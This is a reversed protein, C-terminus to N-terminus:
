AIVPGSVSDIHDECIVVLHDFVSLGLAGRKKIYLRKESPEKGCKVHMCKRFLTLALYRGANSLQDPRGSSINGCLRDYIWNSYELLSLSSLLSSKASNCRRCLIQWNVGGPPDGGVHWPVIHDLTEEIDQNSFPIGCVRCRNGQIGRLEVYLNKRLRLDSIQSKRASIDSGRSNPSSNTQYLNDCITKIISVLTEDSDGIGVNVLHRRISPKILAYRDKRFIAETPTLGFVLPMLEFVDSESYQRAANVDIRDHFSENLHFGLYNKLKEITSYDVLRGSIQNM